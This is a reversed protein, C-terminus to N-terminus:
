MARPLKMAHMPSHLIYNSPLTSHFPIDYYISRQNFLIRASGDCIYVVISQTRSFITSQEKFACEYTCLHRHLYSHLSLFVFFCSTVATYVFRLLADGIVIEM